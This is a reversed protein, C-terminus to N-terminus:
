VSGLKKKIRQLANDVAKVSVDCLEAIEAYSYGEMRYVVVKVEFPTMHSLKERLSRKAENFRFQWQPDFDPNTCAITDILYLNEDESITMDLSLSGSILSYSLGRNKRALSRCERDVCL